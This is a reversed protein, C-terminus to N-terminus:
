GQKLETRYVYLFGFGFCALLLTSLIWLSPDEKKEEIRQPNLCIQLIYTRNYNGQTISFQTSTNGKSLTYTALPLHKMQCYGKKDSTYSKQFHDSTLTFTTDAMPKKEDNLLQITVDGCLRQNIVDKLVMAKGEEYSFSIDEKYIDYGDMTTEQKLHYVGTELDMVKVNGQEDSTIDEKICIDEQYLSFVAGRVTLHDNTYVHFSVDIHASHIPMILCFFCCLMMFLKIKM